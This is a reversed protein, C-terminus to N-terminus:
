KLFGPLDDVEPPEDDADPLSDFEHGIQAKAALEASKKEVQAKTPLAVEKVIEREKIKTYKGVEITLMFKQGILYELLGYYYTADNVYEEQMLAQLAKKGPKGYANCLISYVRSNAKSSKTIEDLYQKGSADQWLLILGEKKGEISFKGDSDKVWNDIEGDGADILVCEEEIQEKKFM